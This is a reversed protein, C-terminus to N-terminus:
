AAPVNLTPSEQADNPAEISKNFMYSFDPSLKKLDETWSPNPTKGIFTHELKQTVIIQLLPEIWARRIVLSIAISAACLLINASMSFSVLHFLNLASVPAYITLGLLLTLTYDLIAMWVAFNMLPAHNQCYLFLSDVTENWYSKSQPKLELISLGDALYHSGRLLFPNLLWLRNKLYDLSTARPRLASNFTKLFRTQAAEGEFFDEVEECRDLILEEAFSLSEENSDELKGSTVVKSTIALQARRIRNLYPTAVLKWATGVLTFVTTAMLLAFGSHIWALIFYIKLSLGVGALGLASIASLTFAKKLLYRNLHAFKKSANLLRQELTRIESVGAPGGSTTHSPAETTASHSSTNATTARPEPLTPATERGASATERKLEGKHTHTATKQPEARTTEPAVKKIVTNEDSSDIELILIQLAGVRLRDGEHLQSESIELDNVFSGNRSHNQVFIERENKVFLSCHQRSLLSDSSFCLDSEGRGIVLKKSPLLDVTKQVKQSDFLIELVLKM